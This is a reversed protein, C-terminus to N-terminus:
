GERSNGRAHRGGDGGEGRGALALALPDALLRTCAERLAGRLAAETGLSGAVVAVPFLPEGEIVPRRAQFAEDIDGALSAWFGGVVILAPDLALTLVHLAHGVWRAGERWAAVAMPEASTVRAVFLDVAETLGHRAAVEAMGARKLLADPGAVTVLCGRQGCVCPEGDPAIAIHGFAGAMGHAGRLLMGHSLAAGGIGSDSKIYLADTVGPQEAFEAAAAVVVDAVLHVPLDSRLAACRQRLEAVVDVPGWELDTDAVVIPPDGAVPAFMVITVDVARRGARAADALARTLATAALDLISGPDRFPRGHSAVSRALETGALDATVVSVHDADIQVAVLAIHPAFISLKQLRRGRRASPEPEAETVVAADVLMATLATVSGRSLGTAAAIESRAVPGTAAIHRAVLALNHRRVDESALGDARASARAGESSLDPM